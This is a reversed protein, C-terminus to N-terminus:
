KKKKMSLSGSGIEKKKSLVGIVEDQDLVLNGDLDMTALFATIVTDTIRAGSRQCFPSNETFEEAIKRLGDKDIQGSTLVEDIILQKQRM